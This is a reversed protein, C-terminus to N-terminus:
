DVRRYDFQAFDIAFHTNLIARSEDDLLSLAEQTTTGSTANKQRLPRYPRAIRRCIDPWREDIEELKVVDDVVIKGDVSLWRFCPAFMLPRNYYRPDKAGYARHIWANLEIGDDRLGTQNTKVRYRYHSVAKAYPHRILAFTYNRDWRGRGIRAIRRAATDHHKPLGLFREVSTGGCKNIHIFSYRDLYKQGFWFRQKRLWKRHRRSLLRM